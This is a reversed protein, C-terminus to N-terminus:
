TKAIRAVFFASVLCSIFMLIMLINGAATQTLARYWDANMLRFMPALGIAIIVVTLYSKWASEALTEAEVRMNKHDSMSQIIPYLAFLMNRNQQCMRLTKIWNSFYPNGVQLDLIVLSKEISYGVITANSVFGDFPTRVRLAAPIGKSQEKTYHEIAALINYHGAYANTIMSMASEIKDYEARRVRSAALYFFLYPMPVIFIALALALVFTGFFMMGALFGAVSAAACTIMFVQWSVGCQRMTRDIIYRLKEVASVKRRTIALRKSQLTLEKINISQTKPRILLLLLGALLLIFVIM